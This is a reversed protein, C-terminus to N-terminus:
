FSTAVMIYDLGTVPLLDSRVDESAGGEPYIGIIANAFAVNSDFNLYTHTSIPHPLFIVTDLQIVSPLPKTKSILHM